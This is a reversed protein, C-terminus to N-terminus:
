EGEELNDSPSVFLWSAAAFIAITVGVVTALNFITGDIYGSIVYAARAITALTVGLLFTIASLWQRISHLLVTTESAM